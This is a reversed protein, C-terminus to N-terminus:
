AKSGKMAREILSADKGADLKEGIIKETAEAVLLKTEQKLAERARVVDAALQAKAETAIHETKTRAREEATAVMDLAEKHAVAVIQEAQERADKLQKAIHAETEEARKAAEQAAKAGADLQEQRKDIARILVPYVFKGLLVVLVLFAVAQLILLKWDIGLAAFLGAKEASAESAVTTVTSLVNM